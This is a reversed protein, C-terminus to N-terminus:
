LEIMEEGGDQAFLYTAFELFFSTIEHWTSVLFTKVGVVSVGSLMFIPLFVSLIIFIFFCRYIYHTIKEQRSKQDWPLASRAETYRIVNLMADDEGNMWGMSELLAKEEKTPGKLVTKHKTVQDGQAM